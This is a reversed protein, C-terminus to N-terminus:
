KKKWEAKVIIINFHFTKIIQLDITDSFEKQLSEMQWTMMELYLTAGTLGYNVIEGFLVRYLDLGDPGGLFAM